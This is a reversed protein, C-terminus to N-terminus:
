PRVDWKFPLINIRLLSYLTLYAYQSGLLFRKFPSYLSFENSHSLSFSWYKPWRICVSENPFVRISPFLSSLLLPHSLILPSSPMAMRHVHTQALEPLQHHVPCGPMSCDIPDHLTPCSQTAPSFQCNSGCALMQSHFLLANM